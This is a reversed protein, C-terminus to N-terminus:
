FFTDIRIPREPALDPALYTKHQMIKKDLFPIFRDSAM